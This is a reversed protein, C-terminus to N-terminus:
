RAAGPLPLIWEAFDNASGGFTPSVALDRWRLRGHVGYPWLRVRKASREVRVELFSQFFPAVNYDFLASMYETSFPWAHYNKTWWWAPRKWWPTRLDVKAVLEDRRPYFAWKETPPNAPWDMATGM